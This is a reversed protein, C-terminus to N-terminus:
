PSVWALALEFLVPCVATLSMVVRPPVALNELFLSENSRRSELRCVVVVLVVVAAQGLWELTADGLM